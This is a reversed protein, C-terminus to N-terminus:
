VNGRSFYVTGIESVFYSNTRQGQFPNNELGRINLLM